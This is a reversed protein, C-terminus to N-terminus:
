ESVPRVSRGGDRDYWSVGRYSGYFRLYYASSVFSENPASSWYNGYEGAISLSSGGRYGAAPLFISNGNPGTVKYGRKGNQTTWEWRCKDRLEQFEARTPLRWSSGWKKRAVDYTPNGSIDSM